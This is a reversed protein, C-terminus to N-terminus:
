YYAATGIRSSLRGYMGYRPVDGGLANAITTVNHDIMGVYTGEYSQAPGMADSYLVGGIRLRHGRANAGEMLARASKDNVSSEMFIVGIKREVVLDILDNIRRLGAESETSIGQIGEVRMGYARGFYAFADHATILVRKDAPITAIVRQAYDDLRELRAIYQRLRAMYDASNGRDYKVLASAVGEAAASWLDVDMWVHPDNDFQRRLNGDTTKAAIVDILAHIHENRRSLSKLVTSMQGELLSGVYLVVDAKQLQQVDSRTPNYLHPDIGSRILTIVEAEPGAIYEAVNGIMAVTAVVTYAQAQPAALAAMVLLAVAAFMMKQTM